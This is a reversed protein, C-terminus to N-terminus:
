IEKICFGSFIGERKRVEKIGVQLSILDLNLHDGLTAKRLFLESIFLTYGTLINIM